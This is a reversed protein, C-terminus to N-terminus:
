PPFIEVNDFGASCCLVLANGNKKLIDVQRENIKRNVFICVARYGEAQRLIEDPVGHFGTALKL